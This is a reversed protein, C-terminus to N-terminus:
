VEELWAVLEHYPADDVRCSPVSFLSARSQRKIGKMYREYAFSGLCAARKLRGGRAAGRM